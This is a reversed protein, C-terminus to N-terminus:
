KILQNAIKHCDFQIIDGRKINRGGYRVATDLYKNLASILLAKGEKKLTYGNRLKDFHIQKVKRGAFLNIVTEEAWIRYNEILDSVLSKKNYNDTHIIGVYPDLGAIISAKEVKSYLVGYAYNLLANFEDKAPNRSRGEFRYKEPMLFNIADFYIRGASGEIGMISARIEDINEGSLELLRDKCSQLQKTYVTINASKKTRSARLRGLM